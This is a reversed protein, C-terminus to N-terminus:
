RKWIKEVWIIDRVFQSDTMGFAQGSRLRLFTSSDTQVKIASTEVGSSMVNKQRSNQIKFM